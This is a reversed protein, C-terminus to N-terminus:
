PNLRAYGSQGPYILRAPEHGRQRYKELEVTLFDAWGTILKEVEMFHSVCAFAQQNDCDYLGATAKDLSLNVQCIACTLPDPIPQKIHTIAM